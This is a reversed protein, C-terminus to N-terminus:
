FANKIVEITYGNSSVLVTVVDFRCNMNFIKNDKLYYNAVKRIKNQKTLTISEEPYGYNLSRRTKVEIFVITNNLQAILDIEGLACRYNRALLKYGNKNLYKAAAIEGMKGLEHRNLSIGGFYYM